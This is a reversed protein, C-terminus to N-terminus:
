KLEIEIFVFEFDNLNIVNHHVGKDRYYSVGEALESVTVGTSSEIDLRGSTQPVVVYDYQHTHWTTEAGSAFRWETVIVKDNDIQITPIAKPRDNDM